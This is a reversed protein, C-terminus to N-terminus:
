LGSLLRFIVSVSVFFYSVDKFRLALWCEIGYLPPMLTIRIVYKQLEPNNYNNLHLIVSSFAIPLTLFVFVASIFRYVHFM